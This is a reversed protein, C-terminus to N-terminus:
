KKLFPLANLFLLRCVDNELIEFPSKSLSIELVVLMKPISDRTVISLYPFLQKEFKFEIRM